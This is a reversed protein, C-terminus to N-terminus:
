IDCQDGEKRSYLRRNVFIGHWSTLIFTVGFTFRHWFEQPSRSFSLTARDVYSEYRGDDWKISMLSQGAWNSVYGRTGDRYVVSGLQDSAMFKIGSALAAVYYAVGWVVRCAFTRWSEGINRSTELQERIALATARTIRM